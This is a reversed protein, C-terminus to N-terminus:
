SLIDKNTKQALLDAFTEEDAKLFSALRRLEFTVVQEIADARVYHRTKCSGRYDKEYNSCSFYHIDNLFIM